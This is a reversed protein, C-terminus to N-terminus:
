DPGCGLELLGQHQIGVIGLGPHVQPQQALLAALVFSRSAFVLLRQAEIGSGGFGEVIQSQEVQVLPLGALRAGGQPLGQLQPGVVLLRPEVQVQEFQPPLPRRSGPHVRLDQLAIRLLRRQPQCQALHPRRFPIPLPCRRGALFGPTQTRAQPCHRHKQGTDVVVQAPQGFCDLGAPLGDGLRRSLRAPVVIQGSGQRSGPFGCLGQLGRALGQLQIRGIRPCCM